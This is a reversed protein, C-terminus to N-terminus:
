RPCGSSRIGPCGRRRGRGCGVGLCRWAAMLGRGVCVHRVEEFLFDEVVADELVSVDELDVVEEVVEDVDVDCSLDALFEFAAELVAADGFDEGDLGAADGHGGDGCEAEVDGDEEGLLGLADVDGSVLVGGVGEGEGVLAGVM